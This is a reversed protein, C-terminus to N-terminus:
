ISRMRTALDRWARFSGGEGLAQNFGRCATWCNQCGRAPEAGSMRRHIVDLPEERVNGFPADIKEICASVNGLHDVNFSQVGAHCDPMAEGALFPAIGDIYDGFMRFHAHQSWLAAIRQADHAAPLSAGPARRFGRTSLLTACHGVGEAASRELLPALDDANDDMLVTMVHVQKQGHPASDRLMAVAKWAREFAGPLGRRRDHRAADAYDISVGVQALGADWLARAADADVYWGNTYLLPIHRKAFARVIATLDPRVFPEGGEISVLFTGLEALQAALRAFDHTTLEERPAAGNPWFDCFNCRMNCRNTVQLLLQFPKHRVVGAAFRLDRVHERVSM